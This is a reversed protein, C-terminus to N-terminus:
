QHAYRDGSITPDLGPRAIQANKAIHSVPKRGGRAARANLLTRTLRALNRADDLARHPTGEAELGVIQLSRNLGRPTTAHWRAFERRLDIFGLFSAPMALKH